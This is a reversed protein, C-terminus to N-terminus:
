EGALFRALDIIDAASHLTGRLAEKAKDVLAARDAVPTDDVKRVEHVWVAYDRSPVQVRYPLDGDVTDVRVVTGCQGVLDGESDDTVEVLDGVKIDGM